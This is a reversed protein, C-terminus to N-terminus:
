KGVAAAAHEVCNYAWTTAMSHNIGGFIYQGTICTPGLIEGALYLNEVVTGDELLLQAEGNVMVGGTSGTYAYPVTELAIFPGNELAVMTDAARGFVTDGNGAQADTNYQEITAVLNEAGMKSALEELTDAKFAVKGEAALEDLKDWGNNDLKIYTIGYKLLFNDPTITDASVIIYLKDEPADMWMHVNNTTEDGVRSGTKDVYVRNPYSTNAGYTMEFGDTMVGGGYFTTLKDMNFFYGGVDKALFFGSGNSTKPAQSVINDFGALKLLEENHCYGGTALMITPATFYEEGAYVGLCKGDKVDLKTVKTNLMVKVSGDEVCKNLRATLPELYGLAGGLGSQDKALTVRMTDFQAYAGGVLGRSGFDVGIDEDLWDITRGATQCHKWSLDPNLEQEGGGNRVVERYFDEYTDEVGNEKQIKFIAGSITGGAYQSCGGTRASEELILVKLGLESGRVGATIGALGGGVVLLDPEFAAEDKTEGTGALANKVAEIIGNSTYTASTVADVEVDQKEVIAAPIEAIPKDSIGPTEDHSVVEVAAIKGGDITVNVVINSHMGAGTGTYVGDAPLAEASAFGCISFLMCLAMLLALGKKKM